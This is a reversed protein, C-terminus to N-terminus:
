YYRMPNTPSNNKRIEFHLHPGTSHGSNGVRGIAQGKSVTAGSSISVASLHAYCTSYGNGHSIIIHLGYGGATRKVTAKGSDAAVVTRGYVGSTSIDVGKHFRGWRPGFPSSITRVGPVPWAFKGSGVSSAKKTGVEYVAEVPEKTVTSSIVESSVQVGNIETVQKVVEREGNEGKTVCKKYSTPKKNNKVTKKTFKIKEKITVTRVTQVKLVPLEKEVLVSTGPEPTDQLNDNLKMLRKYSMNAVNAISQATDGEMVTYLQTETRKKSITKAFKDSSVIRDTSYLGSIIDTTGMFSVKEGPTGTKYQDLFTEMIFQIDGYSKAAACLEGNIYLGYANEVDSSDALLAECLTESSMNMSSSVSAISYKPTLSEIYGNNTNVTRQSLLEVANNYVSEDEIYGLSKGNCTVELAHPLSMVASIVATLAGICILPLVVNVVGAFFGRHLSFTAGVGAKAKIEGCICRFENWAGATPQAVHRSLFGAIRGGVPSFFKRIRRRKNYTIFQIRLGIFCLMRYARALINMKKKKGNAKIKRIIERKSLNSM